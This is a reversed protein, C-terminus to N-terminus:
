GYTGLELGRDVFFRYTEYNVTDPISHDSHLVYGYKGMVIPVKSELERNVKELDNSYLVRVDMGGMFSLVDGYDRYLKLLDMGAKVEIVQLCDIGAEIMGPVLKEVMGCSHMIVPLNRSKAYDITKIHGPQIIEKYMAPSMFPRGKFGMDEFYWIGDPEGEESFLIEQLDITLQAYTEVMDKVWDPDLAMGMLMYEHGCVPHMCEFVNVGCWAFFRNKERAYAKAQRYAQFNIRRRDPKLFPKIHEEWDERNKVLFDVHEPTSDHLKHRRLLAGNGDRILITEETEEVVEPQFDLDATLNFAWYYEMDFGFHDALNEDKRIHGQESWKKYTDGWFSEFLGIRDVPQRKLINGIREIGTMPQM